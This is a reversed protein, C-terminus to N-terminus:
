RSCTSKFYKNLMEALERKKFPKRISDIFGFGSPNAMVPDESFGSAAFVPIEPLRERLKVVAEKGGMGGPVTLDFLAYRLPKGHTIAEDCLRLAEEGNRAELYTYGLKILMDGLIERMYDEDDMILVTGSGQHENITQPIDQVSGSQLAPLYVHFTSGKGPVSEVDIVGDHKMIISYCTALGLGSGSQKTTFFPDFIRKLMSPPIGVGTDAVSVKIYNGPKLLLLDKEQMEYNSVSITITGGAPMAQQANLVINDIVQGIQNEDYDCLWVDEAINCDCRVNSGSLVFAANEQILKGINGTKRLPMGGKSFTLLQQTLNKAREYVTLAKDLYKIAAKDASCHGRAMDMYGFIGGLLNNFDHAIGGALVGLSDLKQTNQILEDYKKVMTVDDFTVAFLGPEPCFAYGVFHKGNHESYQEYRISPGGIAVNKFTAVWHEVEEKPLLTSIPKGLVAEKSVGLLSEAAPNMDITYYDVPDGQENFVMQQVSCGSRMETFLSRYKKENKKLADDVKKRETVDQLTGFVRETKGHVKQAEGVIHVIRHNGKATVLSLEVDFPTSFVVANQITQSLKSHDEKAYFSAFNDDTPVFGPEVEHIKYLENTWTMQMSVIDLEWGGIAGMKGVANLLAERKQAAEEANKREVVNWVSDMMLTLQRIDSDTYEDVKNAVGVAAVIAENCMVPITLFRHLPAHGEPVGKKHPNPAAFNNIMIPKRQRVAEGWMGTKDLTYITQKETIRCQHMVEKSWSNLTFEKRKEDYLYIYGLKSRTLTVVENLAFDLFDQINTADYTIIRLLSELRLENFGADVDQKNTLDM